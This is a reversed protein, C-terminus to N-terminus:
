EEVEIGLSRLEDYLQCGRRMPETEVYCEGEYPCPDCGINSITNAFALSFVQLKANEAKLRDYDRIMEFLMNPNDRFKAYAEDFTM